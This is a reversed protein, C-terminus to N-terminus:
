KPSLIMTLSYGQRKPEQDIKTLEKLQEKVYNLKEYGLEMHTAERGRFILAFKLPCGDKLFKKAQEMKVDIDHRDTRISLRIGKIERGKQAASHKQESKRLKYLYKGYDMIRCVPPFVNPSVELLDLGMERALTLAKQLGMIGGQFDEGDEAILRM